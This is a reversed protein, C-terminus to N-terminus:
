NLSTAPDREAARARAIERERYLSALADEAKMRALTAARLERAAARVEDLSQKTWELERKLRDREAVVAAHAERARQWSRALDLRRASRLM